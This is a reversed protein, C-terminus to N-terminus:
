YDIKTPIKTIIDLASNLNIKVFDMFNTILYEIM